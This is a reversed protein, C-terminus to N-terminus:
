RRNPGPSAWPATARPWARRRLRLVGAGIAAPILALMVVCPQASLFPPALTASGAAVRSALLGTTIVLVIASCAMLCVTLPFRVDPAEGLLHDVRATDIGGSFSLMAQALASRNGPAANM